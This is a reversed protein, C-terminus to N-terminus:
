IPVEHVCWVDLACMWNYVVRERDSLCVCVCVREGNTYRMSRTLSCVILGFCCVVFVVRLSWCWCCCHWRLFFCCSHISSFSVLFFFFCVFAVFFPARSRFFYFSSFFLIIFLSAALMRAITEREGYDTQTLSHKDSTSTMTTRHALSKICYVHLNPMIAMNAVHQKIKLQEIVLLIYQINNERRM